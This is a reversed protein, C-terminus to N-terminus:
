DDDEESEEDEDRDEIIDEVDIDGYKYIDGCSVSYDIYYPLNRLEDTTMDELESICDERLFDLEDEIADESVDATYNDQIFQQFETDRMLEFSDIENHLWKDEIDKVFEKAGEELWWGLERYPVGFHKQYFYAILMNLDEEIYSEVEIEEDIDLEACEKHIIATVRYRM